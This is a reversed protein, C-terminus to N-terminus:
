SYMNIDPRFSTIKGQKLKTRDTILKDVNNIKLKDTLVSYCYADYMKYTKNFMAIKLMSKAVDESYQNQVTGDDSYREERVNFLSFFPFKRLGHIYYYSSTCRKMAYHLDSICHSNIFIKGGKTEHGFLKFFKLLQVNLKGDKILMSDAVLSAEDLLVISGYNFRVERLLHEKTIECYRIKYLPINSYLMPKEPKQRCLIKAFFCSLYYGILAKRYASVACRVTFASKGCKVGGTVLTVAGFNPIKFFKFYLFIAVLVLVVIIISGVDFDM